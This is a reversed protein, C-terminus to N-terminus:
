GHLWREAMVNEILEKFAMGSTEKEMPFCRDKLPYIALVSEPACSEIDFEAFQRYSLPLAVYGSKAVSYPLKIIRTHYFMNDYHFAAGCVQRLRPMWSKYASPAAIPKMEPFASHVVDWPIRIHFGKSGSFMIQPYVKNRHLYDVFEKLAFTNLSDSDVCFDFGKTAALAQDNFLKKYKEFDKRGPDFMRWNNYPMHPWDIIGISHYLQAGGDYVGYRNFTFSLHDIKTTKLRRVMRGDQLMIIFEREGLNVSNLMNFRILPSGYYEKLEEPSTKRELKQNIADSM